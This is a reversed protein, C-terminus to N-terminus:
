PTGYELEAMQGRITVVRWGANTLAQYRPSKYAVTIGKDPQFDAWLISRSSM